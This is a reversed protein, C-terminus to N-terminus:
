PAVRRLVPCKAPRTRRVARRYLTIDKDLLFRVLLATWSRHAHLGDYYEPAIAKVRPLRMWPVRMLDHHENHYGANFLFRNAPGYYSYTEQGERFLYHEQIWRAGLPHLGIGLSFSLFLYALAAPGAWAAVGAVFLAQAAANALFWRDLVATREMKLTRLSQFLWFFLLWVAKRWPSRGVLRAELESPLDGDRAPDGHHRHHMLHYTRFMSAAPFLLPLNAFIMLANNAPRNRFVLDHVCEHILVWLGLSLVAGALYAAALIAWWPAEALAIALATQGAVLAVVFLATIPANGVLRKLEPHDAILARMRERHPDPAAAEVFGAAGAQRTPTPSLAAHIM